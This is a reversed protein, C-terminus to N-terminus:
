ALHLGESVLKIPGLLKWKERSVSTLTPQHKVVQYWGGDSLVPYRKFDAASSGPFDALDVGLEALDADTVEEREVYLAQAIQPGSEAVDDEQDHETHADSIGRGLRLEARSPRRRFWRTIRVM